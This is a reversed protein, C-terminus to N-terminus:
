RQLFIVLKSLIAIKKEVLKEAPRSDNSRNSSRPAPGSSRPPPPGRSDKPERYDLVFIIKM